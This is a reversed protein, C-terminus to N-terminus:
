RAIIFSHNEYYNTKLNQLIIQYIGKPLSQTAIQNQEQNLTGNEFTKGTNDIIQYTWEEHSNPLTIIFSSIAPNPYLECKKVAVENINDKLQCGPILCGFSDVKLLISRQVDSRSFDRNEGALVFGGDPTQLISNVLM